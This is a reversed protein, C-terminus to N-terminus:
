KSRSPVHTRPHCSIGYMGKVVSAELPDKKNWRLQDLALTEVLELGKQQLNDNSELRPHM